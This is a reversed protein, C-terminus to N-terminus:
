KQEQDLSRTILSAAHTRRSRRSLFWAAVIAVWMCGIGLILPWKRASVTEVTAPPPTPAAVPTPANTAALAPAPEVPQEVVAKEPVTVVAPEPEPTPTPAPAPEVPTVVPAPAPSVVPVPEVLVNTSDPKKPSTIIISKRPEAPKTAVPAPAPTPPKPEEAFPPYEIPWPAFSVSHGIYKGRESRLVTVLPMRTKALAPQHQAYAANIADDFPTGSIKQAGDSFILVTLRRSGNIVRPLETMVKELRAKDKFEQRGIFRSSRGAIINSRAPEWIQMPAVGAALEKNFTWLGLEDGPKMEGNMGSLLLEGIVGEMAAARNKMAASTDAILLWRDPQPRTPANTASGAASALVVAACLLAIVAPGLRIMKM